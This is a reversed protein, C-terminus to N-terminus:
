QQVGNSSVLTLKLLVEIVNVDFKTFSDGIQAQVSEDSSVRNRLDTLFAVSLVVM